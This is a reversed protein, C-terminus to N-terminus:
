GFRLRREVVYQATEDISLGHDEAHGVLLAVAAAVPCDAQVAVMGTAQHVRMGYRFGNAEVYTADVSSENNQEGVM